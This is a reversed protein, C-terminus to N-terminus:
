HLHICKFVLWAAHRRTGRLLCAPFSGGGQRQGKGKGEGETQPGVKALESLAEAARKEAAVARAESASDAAALEADAAAARREAVALAATAVALKEEAARARRQACAACMYPAPPQANKAPPTRCCHEHPGKHSRTCLSACLSRRHGVGETGVFKCSSAGSSRRHGFWHTVSAERPALCGKDM